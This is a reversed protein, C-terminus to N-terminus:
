LFPIMLYLLFGDSAIYAGPKIFSDINNGFPMFLLNRSIDIYSICHEPELENSAHTLFRPILILNNM